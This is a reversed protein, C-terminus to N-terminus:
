YYRAWVGAFHTGGFLKNCYSGAPLQYNVGGYMRETCMIGPKDLSDVTDRWFLAWGGGKHKGRLRTIFVSGSETRRQLQISWDKNSRVDYVDDGQWNGMERGTWPIDLEIEDFSIPTTGNAMFYALGAQYVNKLLALGQRAQAKEVAKQYQPLAIAALIGIIIVVALLEILTFGKNM